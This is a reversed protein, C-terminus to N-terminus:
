LDNALYRCICISYLRIIHDLRPRSLSRYELSAEIDFNFNRYSTAVTSWIDRCRHDVRHQYKLTPLTRSTWCMCVTHYISKIGIM